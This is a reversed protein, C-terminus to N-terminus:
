LQENNWQAALARVAAASHADQAAPVTDTQLSTVTQVSTTRMFRLLIAATKEAKEPSGDGGGCLLIAGTKPRDILETHLFRRAAYYMQLRSLMALLAGSLESFYVPSAIVIHDAAQIDAYITQMADQICCGATKMCSRCDVCPQVAADYARYEIVEGHLSQRLTQILFATDGNKHPSGNLILTRM